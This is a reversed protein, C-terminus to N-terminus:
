TRTSSIGVGREIAQGVLEVNAQGAVAIIPLEDIINPIIDGGIEIGRLAKGRVTVHGSPEGARSDLVSDTINAGMRVLVDIIGARTPNLGVNQITLRAGPQISAAALWFAASSIDGPVTFDWRLCM